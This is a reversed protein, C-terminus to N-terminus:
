LVHKQSVSPVTDHEMGGAASLMHFL